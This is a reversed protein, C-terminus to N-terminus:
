YKTLYEEISNIKTTSISINFVTALNSYVDTVTPKPYITDITLKILEILKENTFSKTFDDKFKAALDNFTKQVETITLTKLILNKIDLEKDIMLRIQTTTFMTDINPYQSPIWDLITNIKDDTIFSLYPKVRYLFYKLTTKDLISMLYKPDAYIQEAKEFGIFETSLLINNIYNETYQKVLNEDIVAEPNNRVTQIIFQVIGAVELENITPVNNPLSLQFNLVKLYANNDKFWFTSPSSSWALYQAETIYELDRAQTLLIIHEEMSFDHSPDNGLSHQDLAYQIDSKNLKRYNLLTIVENRIINDLPNKDKSLDVESQNKNLSAVTKLVEDHIAAVDLNQPPTVPATVGPTYSFSQPKQFKGAATQGFSQLM